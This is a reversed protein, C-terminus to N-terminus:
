TTQVTKKIITCSTAAVDRCVAQKRAFEAPPTRRRFRVQHRAGLAESEPFLKSVTRVLYEIEENSPSTRGPDGTDAVETTGVLVQENWPLVFVPRGDAAEAYLASSPAGSFRPLVIHSGRVGGLM